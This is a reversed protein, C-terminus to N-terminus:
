NVGDLVRLLYQNDWGAKLRKAHIGVRSSREQRLLNLSIHRLVALNEDAHGLRVRSEDERFAIDLVWHLSNEISWHSRVATAFTKVSSFSLLFYRTEKTTKQEMRREARVVGIGRLGKWQHEPDLYALIEPDSLTWQERIELRGHGKEVQRDAEWYPSLFGDKEALAFTAKVEDFLNGHNDKLALAYDGGQDIIQEAIKTQTGMADITVICGGLALQELLLPIATIENSKEETALQALVLRNEVAWASVLHLAKKGTAQDHSRRLTKGDIAIVGQIKQSVGQVWQIFSAEFQKPDILAFVRGFTDHSPIGNPLDLLDTFFAKKANGFEEIEVWGDAGCLVGCIALIIIDRLRHRKTREVRPDEVQEFLSELDRRDNEEM